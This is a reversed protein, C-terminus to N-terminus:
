VLSMSFKVRSDMSSASPPRRPPAAHTNALRTRSPGHRRVAHLLSTQGWARPSVRAM